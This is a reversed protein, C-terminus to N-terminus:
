DDFEGKCQPCVLITRRYLLNTVNPQGPYRFPQEEQRAPPKAHLEVFRGDMHCTPCICPPTAVCLFGSTPAPEPLRHTPAAAPIARGVPVTETGGIWPATTREADFAEATSPEAGSAPTGTTEGAHSPPYHTDM